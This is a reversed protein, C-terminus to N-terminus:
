RDPAAYKWYTDKKSIRDDDTVDYLDVARVEFPTGRDVGSILFSQTVLGPAFRECLDDYRVDTWHERRWAIETLLEDIGRLVRGTPAPGDKAFWHNHWVFDDTLVAALLDCDAKAFARRFRTMLESHDITESV